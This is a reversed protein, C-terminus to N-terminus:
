VMLHTFVMNSDGVLNRGLCRITMALAKGAAKRLMEGAAVPRVDGRDNKIFAFLWALRFLHITDQRFGGSCFKVLIQKFASIDTAPDSTMANKLMEYSWNTPGSRIRNPANFIASHLARDTPIYADRSANALM